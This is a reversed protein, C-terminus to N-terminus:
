LFLPLHASVVTEVKIYDLFSRVADVLDEPSSILKSFIPEDDAPLAWVLPKYDDVPLHIHPDHESFLRDAHPHFRFPLSPRIDSPNKHRSHFDLRVIPMNLAVQQFHLSLKLRVKKSRTIDVFFTQDPDSTLALYLRESRGALNIQATPSTIIKPAKILDLCEAASLVM